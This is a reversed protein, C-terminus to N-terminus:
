RSKAIVEVKVDEIVRKASTPTTFGRILSQVSTLMNANPLDLYSWSGTKTSLKTEVNTPNGAPHNRGLDTVIGYIPGSNLKSQTAKPLYTEKAGDGKITTGLSTSSLETITVDVGPETTIDTNANAQRDLALERINVSGLRSSPAIGDDYVVYIDTIHTVASVVSAAPKAGLGAMNIKWYSLPVDTLTAVVVGDLYLSAAGSAIDHVIEFYLDPRGSYITMDPLTFQKGTPPANAIHASGTTFPKVAVACRWGMIFKKANGIPPLTPTGRQAEVPPVNPDGPRAILSYASAESTVIGATPNMVWRRGNLDAIAMVSSNSVASIDSAKGVLGTGTPIPGLKIRDFGEAYVLSM